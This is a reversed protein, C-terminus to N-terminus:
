RRGRALGAATADHRVIAEQAAVLRLQVEGHMRDPAVVGPDVTSWAEAAAIAADAIRLYSQAVTQRSHRLLDQPRTM